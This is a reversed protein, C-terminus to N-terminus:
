REFVLLGERNVAEAVVPNERQPDYLQLHVDLETAADLERKWGPSEAVFSTSPDTDHGICDIEIAVDLDSNEGHDGRARSGYIWARRVFPRKQAWDRVANAARSLSDDLM